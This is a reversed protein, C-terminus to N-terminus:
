ATNRWVSSWCNMFHWGSCAPFANGLAAPMKPEPAGHSQWVQFWPSTVNQGLADKHIDPQLVWQPMAGFVCRTLTDCWGSRPTPTVLREPVFCELWLLSPNPQVDSKARPGPNVWSQLLNLLNAWAATDLNRSLEETVLSEVLKCSRLSLWDIIKRFTFFINIFSQPAKEPTLLCGLDESLRGSAESLCKRNGSFSSTGGLPSRLSGYMIEGSNLVGSSAVALYKQNCLSSRQSDERHPNLLQMPHSGHTGPWSSSGSYHIKSSSSGSYHIKPFSYLWQPLNGPSAGHTFRLRWYQLSTSVSLM